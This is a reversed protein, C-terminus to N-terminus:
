RISFGVMFGLRHYRTDFFPTVNFDLEAVDGSNLRISQPSTILLTANYGSGLEGESGDNVKRSGWAVGLGCSRLRGTRCASFHVGAILWAEGGRGQKAHAKWDVVSPQAVDFWVAFDQDKKEEAM